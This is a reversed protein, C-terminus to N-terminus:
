EYIDLMDDESRRIDKKLIYKFGFTVKCQEYLYRSHYILQTQNM